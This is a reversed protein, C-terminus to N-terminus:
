QVAKEYRALQDKFFWRLVSSRVASFLYHGACIEKMKKERDNMMNRYSEILELVYSTGTLEPPLEEVEESALSRDSTEIQELAM